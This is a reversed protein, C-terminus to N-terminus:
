RRASRARGPRIGASGPPSRPTDGRRRDHRVVDDGWLPAVARQLQQADVGEGIGGEAAVDAALPYVGRTREGGILQRREVCAGARHQQRLLQGGLVAQLGPLLQIELHAPPPLLPHDGPQQARGIAEAPTREGPQHNGVDGRRLFQGAPQLRRSRTSRMRGAPFSAAAAAIRRMKGASACSDGAPAWAPASACIVQPRGAGVQGRQAQQGQQDPHEQDVVAHGKGHHLAPRQEARQAAQPDGALLDSGSTRASAAITPASPDTMPTASPTRSPWPATCNTVCVIM